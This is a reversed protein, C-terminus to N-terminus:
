VEAGTNDDALGPMDTIAAKFRTLARVYRISAAKRQIGLVEAVESNSLQEFHRLTLIERDTPSMANVADILQRFLM